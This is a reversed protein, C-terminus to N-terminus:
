EPNTKQEVEEVYKKVAQELVFQQKMGNLACASKFRRVLQDSIRFSMQVTKEEEM